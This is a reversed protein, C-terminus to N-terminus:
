LREWSTVILGYPNEYTREKVALRFRLKLKRLNVGSTILFASVEVGRSIMKVKEFILHSAEIDPKRLKQIFLSSSFDKKSALSEFVFKSFNHVEEKTRKKSKLEVISSSESGREIVLNQRSSSLILQASLVLIVFGCILNAGFLMNTWSTLKDVLSELTDKENIIKKM